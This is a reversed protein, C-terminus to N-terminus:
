TATGSMPEKTSGLGWATHWGLRRGQGREQNRLHVSSSFSDWEMGISDGREEDLKLLKCDLRRIMITAEVGGGGQERNHCVV